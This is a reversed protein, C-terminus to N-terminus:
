YARERIEKATQLDARQQELHKEQEEKDQKYKMVRREHELEDQEGRVSNRIRMRKGANAVLM